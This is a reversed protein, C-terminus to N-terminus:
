DMNSRPEIGLVAFCFLAFAGIDLLGRSGSGDRGRDGYSWPSLSGPSERFWHSVRGVSLDKQVPLPVHRIQPKPGLEGHKFPARKKDKVMSCSM